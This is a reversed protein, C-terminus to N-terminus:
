GLARRSGSDGGDRSLRRQPRVFHHQWGYSKDRQACGTPALVGAVDDMFRKFGEPDELKGGFSDPADRPGEPVVLMANKDSAAMQEILKYEKLSSAVSNNWGHFHVVFDVPGSTHFGKPIFIAVTSDSYHEKASYFKGHYTHGNSAPRIRSIAGDGITHSDISRFPAYDKELSAGCRGDFTRFIGGADRRHCGTRRSQKTGAARLYRNLMLSFALHEGAASTVYGSLANAWRLTGTKARVNGAAPTNKM